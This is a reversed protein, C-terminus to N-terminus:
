QFSLFFNKISVNLEDTCFTAEDISTQVDDTEQKEGTLEKERAPIQNLVFVVQNLYLHVM